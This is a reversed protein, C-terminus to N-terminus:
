EQNSQKRLLNRVLTVAQLGLVLLSALKIWQNLDLTSLWNLWSIVATLLVNVWFWPSHNEHVAPRM